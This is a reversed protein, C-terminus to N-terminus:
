RVEDTEGHTNRQRQWLPRLVPLSGAADTAATLQGPPAADLAVAVVNPGNVAARLEEVSVVEVLEVAVGFIRELESRRAAGRNRLPLPGLRVVTAM